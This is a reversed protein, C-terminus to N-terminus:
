EGTPTFDPEHCTTGFNKAWPELRGDKVYRQYLKQILEKNYNWNHHHLWGAGNCLVATLVESKRPLHDAGELLHDVGVTRYHFQSDPLIGSSQVRQAEDTSGLQAPEPVEHCGSFGADDPCGDSGSLEMGWQIELRAVDYWGKAQIRSDSGATAAHWADAYEPAVRKAETDMYYKVAEDVREARMLRRALLDGFEAAWSEKDVLTKLEDLTLVREAIYNADAPYSKAMTLQYLAEIYDNRSMSWVANESLARSAVDSPMSETGADSTAFAKSALAFAKAAGDLDGAHLALKGRLWEAYASSSRRLLQAATTFDDNLYALAAAQDPWQIENHPLKALATAVRGARALQRDHYGFSLDCQDENGDGCTNDLNSMAFTILLKQSLPDRLEQTLKNEDDAVPGLIRWLSVVAEFSGPSSGSAQRAYLAVAEHTSGKKLAIGGLEGLAANALSLPDPAGQAVLDITRRYEKEAIEDDGPHSRLHHSRGLMYTALVFRPESPDPQLAVVREFWQIAATLGADVDGQVPSDDLYDTGVSHHVLKFQVAGAIYLRKAESLGDGLRYAEDAAPAQRMQNLQKAVGPQTENRDVVDGSRWELVKNVYADAPAGTTRAIGYVFGPSKIQALCTVRCNLLSPPAEWVCASARLMGLLLGCGVLWYKTKL